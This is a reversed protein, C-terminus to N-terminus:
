YKDSKKANCSRHALQLNDIQHTGGKALPKIHDISPYSEGAIFYGQETIYYDEKDTPKGCIACLGNCKNIVQELTINWDVKGNHTAKAERLRKRTRRKQRKRELACHECLRKWKQLEAGCEPCYRKVIPKPPKPPKSCKCKIKSREGIHKDTARKEGGCKRCRYYHFKGDYRLYEFDAFKNNFYEATM